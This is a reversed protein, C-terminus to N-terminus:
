ITKRKPTHSQSIQRHNREAPPGVTFTRQRQLEGTRLHLIQDSGQKLVRLPSSYSQGFDFLCESRIVMPFICCCKKGRLFNHNMGKNLEMKQGMSYICKYTHLNFLKDCLFPQGTQHPSILQNYDIQPVNEKGANLNLM